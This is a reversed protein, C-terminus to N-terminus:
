RRGGPRASLRMSMVARRRRRASDPRSRRRWPQPCVRAAAPTPAGSADYAREAPPGKVEIEEDAQQPALAEVLVCLRRPTGTVSVDGHALRLDDLLKPVGTQLQALADRLDAPPLEETGIELLLDGAPWPQRLRGFGAAASLRKGARPRRAQLPRQGALSIGHARAARRLRGVGPPGPRAHPRLLAARETVGIAGRADLLNFTHSCRLVYDHAPIVLKHALCSQAEAEFLDYMQKLRGVDAVEFDYTCHEIEPQVCCTAM